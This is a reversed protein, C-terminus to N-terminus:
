NSYTQFHRRKQAEDIQRKKMGPETSGDELVNKTARGACLKSIANGLEGVCMKNQNACVIVKEENDKNCTKSTPCIQVHKTGM